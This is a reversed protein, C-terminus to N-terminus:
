PPTAGPDPPQSHGTEIRPSQGRGTREDIHFFPAMRILLDLSKCRGGTGISGQAPVQHQSDQATSAIQIVFNGAMERSASDFIEVWRDQGCEADAQEFNSM